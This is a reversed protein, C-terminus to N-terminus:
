KPKVQAEEPRCQQQFLEEEEETVSSRQKRWLNQLYRFKTSRLCSM